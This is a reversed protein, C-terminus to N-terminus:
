TDLAVKRISGLATRLVEPDGDTPYVIYGPLNFTPAAEVFSLQRSDVYPRVLREPFYGSGGYNLMHQLGLWAIDVVLAPTGFDPFNMSHKAHFEPGWDVYVYGGTTHGTATSETSVMVLNEELLFEVALGPRREPTYMLGIDMSREVLRAMLTDEHGIEGRISVDPAAERMRPLWKLLVEVWLAFRAGVTLVGRYGHAIEADQQAQEVTRVLTAAHKLFQRGSPTLVAGAKNRVFLRSGLQEELARIRASVTSQTIHLRRAAGIFSGSTVIAQFTRAWETEM